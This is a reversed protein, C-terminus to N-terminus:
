NTRRVKFRQLSGCSQSQNKTTASAIREVVRQMFPVAGRHFMWLQRKVSVGQLKTRAFKTLRM